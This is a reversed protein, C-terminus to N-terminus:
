APVPRDSSPMAAATLRLDPFGKESRRHVGKAAQQVRRFLRAVNRIQREHQRDIEASPKAQFREVPNVKSARQKTGRQDPHYPGQDGLHAVRETPLRDDHADTDEDHPHADVAKIRVQQRRVCVPVGEFM